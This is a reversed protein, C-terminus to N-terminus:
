RKGSSRRASRAQCPRTSSWARAFSANDAVLRFLVLAAGVGAEAVMFGMAWAATRRAPHGPACARWVWILLAAGAIVALGSSVRHSFEVLMELSPARPVLEGNCLPWHAGCGAGSRTARVYAGWAIVGLNVALVGWAFRSLRTVPIM